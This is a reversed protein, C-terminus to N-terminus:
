EKGSVAIGCLEPLLYEFDRKIFIIAVFGLGIRKLTDLWYVKFGGWEGFTIVISFAWKKEEKM